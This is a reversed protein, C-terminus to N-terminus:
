PQLAFLIGAVVTLLFVLLLLPLNMLLAKFLAAKAMDKAAEGLRGTREFAKWIKYLRASTTVCSALFLLLVVGFFAWRYDRYFTWQSQSSAYLMSILVAIQAGALGIITAWIRQKVPADLAEATAQVLRDRNEQAGAVAGGMLSKGAEHAIHPLQAKISATFSESLAAGQRRIWDRGGAIREGVPDQRLCDECCGEGEIKRAKKLSQLLETTLEERGLFHASCFWRGCYSCLRKFTTLKPLSALCEPRSCKRDIAGKVHAPLHKLVCAVCYGRGGPYVEPLTTRLFRAYDGHALHRPCYAEGCSLCKGFRRLLGSKEACDEFRCVTKM